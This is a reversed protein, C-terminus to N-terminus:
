ACWGSSTPCLRFLLISLLRGDITTNITICERSELIELVFTENRLTFAICADPEHVITTRTITITLAKINESIQFTGTLCALTSACQRQVNKWRNLVALYWFKRNISLALLKIPHIEFACNFKRLVLVFQELM